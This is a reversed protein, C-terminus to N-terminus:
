VVAIGLLIFCVCKIAWIVGVVFDPQFYWYFACILLKLHHALNRPFFIAFFSPFVKEKNLIWQLIQRTNEMM